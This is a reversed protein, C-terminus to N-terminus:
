DAIWRAYASSKSFGLKSGGESATTPARVEVRQPRLLCSVYSNQERKALSGMSPRGIEKSVFAFIRLGTRQHGAFRLCAM